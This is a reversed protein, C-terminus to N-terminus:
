SAVRSLMGLWAWVCRGREDPAVGWRGALSAVIALGRGNLSEPPVRRQLPTKPSGGDTVRIELGERQMRWAVALVGGPLPRAHRVANGILETAVAASDDAFEPGCGSVALDALLQRRIVSASSPHHSM